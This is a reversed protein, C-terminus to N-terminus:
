ESEKAFWTAAKKLIDREMELQRIKRKLVENENLLQARNGNGRFADSQETKLKRTWNFLMSRSIGLDDAVQTVSMGPQQSLRVAELKFEKSHKRRPKTEKGKKHSSGM